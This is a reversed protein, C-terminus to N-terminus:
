RALIVPNTLRGIGQIEVTVEDGAKLPSVGSPTGTLVIDGVELRMISSIFSVIRPVNFILDSTHGKQRLEGNVWCNVTLDSPDLDRVLEPGLPCFSDFGKARAFVGDTKQHDRATVDNACTFGEIVEAVRSEPVHRCREGIVVALEAEHDVRSSCPPLEIPEGTAVISSPPKFFIKPVGPIARGMEEAHRRYNTGVAVIKTPAPTWAM